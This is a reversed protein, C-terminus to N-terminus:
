AREGQLGDSTLGKIVLRRTAQIPVQYQPVLEPHDKELRKGDLRYSQKPMKWTALVQGQYSLLEAEGMQGMITQKIKSVEMEKAKIERSLVALRQTM